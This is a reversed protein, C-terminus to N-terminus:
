FRERVEGPRDVTYGGMDTLRQRFGDSKMIGILKQVMPTDWAHDPILLDYQEVCVPIFDLDYMRAASYIGLGADASGAAIQAAVATHTLEEREYGYLKDTELGKTRCLYDLLVRTGSGKQRNVYSINGRFLDELCSIGLPNNKQVMIGQTRGVCEVLRVGGNPFYRKIYATNYSGDSENLLHCGAAHAEGRRVAMIGGMSGVHSSSMYLEGCCQHLMNGLEDLLPDHSGIVVLSAELEAKPRLLRVSVEAGAEM